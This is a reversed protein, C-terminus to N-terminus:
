QEDWGKGNWLYQGGGPATWMTKGPVRDSVPPLATRPAPTQDGSSGPAGSGKVGYFARWRQMTATPDSMYDPDSKAAGLALREQASSLQGAHQGSPDKIMALATPLDKAAGSDMLERALEQTVGQRGAGRQVSPDQWPASKTRGSYRDMWLGQPVGSDDTIPKGDQGTLPRVPEWYGRAAEAARWAATQRAQETSADARQQEIPLKQWEIQMQDDHQAGAQKLKQKSLDLNQSFQEGERKLNAKRYAAQDAQEDEREDQKDAEGRAQGYAQLGRMAGEGIAVGPYPSRSGLIGAGTMALAEWPATRRLDAGRGSPQRPEYGYSGDDPTAPKPQPPGGMGPLIGESPGTYAPSEEVAYSQDDDEVDSGGAYGRPVSGGRAVKIGLIGLPSEEGIAAQKLSAMGYDSFPNLNDVLNGKKGNYADKGAFVNGYGLGATRGVVGGAVGAAPGGFYSGVLEGIINGVDGTWPNNQNPDTQGFNSGGYAFGRPPFIAGGRRFMAAFIEPSLDSLGSAATDGAMSTGAEGFVGTLPVDSASNGVIDEPASSAADTTSKSGGSGMIGKLAGLTSAAQNVPNGIPIGGSAHPPGGGRAGTGAQKPVWGAEIDRLVPLISGGDDHRRPIAGGRRAGFMSGIWGSNGGGPFAGTMGLIGTGLLAGGGVQAATSPGPATTTATGGSLSGTGEIINALWNQTQFPYAQQAQYQYFPVNLQEQSLQQQQNGVNLISNAGSEALNQSEGGLQGLGFASQSGLWGQAENAGLQASQQQQATALATNYNASEIGALVPAEAKTQQGGLIGQAVAARDGGFAGSNIANGILGSQQQANLDAFQAQTSQLVDTTAPNLYKSIDGANIQPLQGWLNTNANNAFIGSAAGIYPQAINADNQIAGFAGTQTPNFDAVLNGTYPQYPRSATNQANDVLGQYAQMFAAPPQNQQTVTSSGSGAGKGM